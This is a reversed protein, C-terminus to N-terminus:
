REETVGFLVKQLFAGSTLLTDYNITHGMDPVANVTLPVGLSELSKITSLFSHRPLINDELGYTFLVPPRSKVEAPIIETMTSFALIGGLSEPRSLGATLALIGGQSFGGLVVDKAALNNASIIKDLLDNIEASAKAIYPRMSVAIVSLEEPSSIAIQELNEMPFWQRGISYCPVATPADPCYFAVNPLKPAYYNVLGVMDDSDAGFGHLLVVAKDVNEPVYSNPILLDKNTLM